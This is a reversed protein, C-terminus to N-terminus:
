DVCRGEECRQGVACANFCSGCSWRNNRLDNCITQHRGSGGFDWVCLTMAGGDPAAPCEGCVGEFCGQGEPCRQGCGGCHFPDLDFNIDCHGDCTESERCCQTRFCLEGTGPGPEGTVAFFASTEDCPMGFESCIGDCGEADHDCILRTNITPVNPDENGPGVTQARPLQDFISENTGLRDEGCSILGQLFPNDELFTRLEGEQSDNKEALVINVGSPLLQVRRPRAGIETAARALFREVREALSPDQGLLADRLARRIAGGGLATLYCTNPTSISENLLTVRLRLHTNALRLPRSYVVQHPTTDILRDGSVTPESCVYREGDIWCGVARLEGLQEETFEDANTLRVFRVHTPRGEGDVQDVLRCVWGISGEDCFVRTASSTLLEDSDATAGVPARDPELGLRALAVYEIDTDRACSKVNARLKLTVRMLDTPEQVGLPASRPERPRQGLVPEVWSRKFSLSRVGTINQTLSRNQLLNIAILNNLREYDIFASCEGIDYIRASEWRRPDLDVEVDVGRSVPLQVFDAGLGLAGPEAGEPEFLPDAFLFARHPSDLRYSVHAVDGRTRVLTGGSTGHVRTFPVDRSPVSVQDEQETTSDTTVFRFGGCYDVRGDVSECRECTDPGSLHSRAAYGPCCSETDTPEEGSRRCSICGEATCVSGPCCGENIGREIGCSEGGGAPLCCRTVPRLAPPDLEVDRCEAGHGQDCCELVENAGACSQENNGACPKCFHSASGDGPDPHEQCQVDDGCRCLGPDVEGGVECPRFCRRQGPETAMGFPEADLCRFGTECPRCGPDADGLNSDCVDGERAPPLCRAAGAFTGDPGLPPLGLFDAADQAFPCTEDVCALGDACDMTAGAPELLEGCRESVGPLLACRGAGVEDPVCQHDPPCAFVGPDDYADLACADLACRVDVAPDAVMEATATPECFSLCVKSESPDGCM